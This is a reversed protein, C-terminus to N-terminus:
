PSAVVHFEAFVGAIGYVDAAHTGYGIKRDIHGAVDEARYGGWIISVPPNVASYIPLTDEM